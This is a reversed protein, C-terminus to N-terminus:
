GESQQVVFKPLVVEFVSGINALDGGALQPFQRRKLQFANADGVTQHVAQCQGNLSGDSGHDVRAIELDVIRGHFALHEIKLPEGGVTFFAHEQEEGVRRIHLTGAIRRGFPLHSGIQFLDKLSAGAFNEYRGKRRADRSDLLYDVNGLAAAPSHDQASAAHDSVAM